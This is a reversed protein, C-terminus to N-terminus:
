LLTSMFITGRSSNHGHDPPSRQRQHEHQDKQGEEAMETLQRYPAHRNRVRMFVGGIRPMMVARVGVLVLAVRQKAHPGGGM